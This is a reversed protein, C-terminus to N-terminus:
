LVFKKVYYNIIIILIYVLTIMTVKIIYKRKKMAVVAIYERIMANPLYYLAAKSPIGSINLGAKKAYMNARLVHYSSTSFIANYNGKEKDMIEKSYKFNELTTKSNSEIIVDEKLVGKELAYNAMAEGESIIEDSGQGGSFIIKSNKGNDKQLQYFEIAKDIRSGLLKSVKQGNILGSGLVIIYDKNFKPKYFSNFISVIVFNYFSLGFYVILIGCYIILYRFVSSKMQEGFNSIILYITLSIGLLLTLLNPLTKREKKLVSRANIFLGIILVIVGFAGIFFYITLVIILLFKLLYNDYLSGGILITISLLLLFINFLLGNILNTSNKKYAWIFIGLISFSLLLVILFLQQDTM